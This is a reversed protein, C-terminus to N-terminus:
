YEETAGLPLPVSHSPGAHRVSSLTCVAATGSEHLAQSSGASSGWPGGPQLHCGSLACGGGGGGRRVGPPRSPSVTLPESDRSAIHTYM